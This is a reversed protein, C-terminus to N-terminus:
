SDDVGFVASIGYVPKYSLMSVPHMGSRVCVFEPVSLGFM